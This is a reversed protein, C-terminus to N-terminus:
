RLTVIDASGLPLVFRTRGNTSQFDLRGHHLSEVRGVDKLTRVDVQVEPLPEGTWNLLTVATGQPSTLMPAEVLPHDVTVPLPVTALRVPWTIWERLSNSFGAPLGDKVQSSSKWYSM